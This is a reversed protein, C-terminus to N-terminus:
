NRHRKKWRPLAGFIMTALAVALMVTQKHELTIM